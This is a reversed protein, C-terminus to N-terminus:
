RVSIIRAASYTAAHLSDGPVYAVLKWTGRYPLATRVSYKTYSSYDAATAYVTKRLKYAGSELRYCNVRVPKSGAAHRPKLYGTVSFTRNLYQTSATYPTTLYAKPTVTRASSYQWGVESSPWAVVRYLTQKAPKVSFSFTGDATTELSPSDTLPSVTTWGTAGYPKAQVLVGTGALPEGGLTITGAISASGGWATTPPATFTVDPTPLQTKKWTLTYAGAASTPYALVDLYFTGTTAAPYIFSETSTGENSSAQVVYSQYNEAYVTKSGPKWLWLEFDTRPAGTMSVTLLENFKLPVSYVDDWDNTTIPDLTGTVPSAPLPVGPIDDDAGFFSASIGGTTYPRLAAIGRDRLVPTATAIAPLAMVAVLAALAARKTLRSLTM